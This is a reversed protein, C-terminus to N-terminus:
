TKMSKRFDVPVALARVERLKNDNLFV